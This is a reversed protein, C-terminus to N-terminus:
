TDYGGLIDSIQWLNAIRDARPKCEPQFMKIMRVLHNIFSCGEIADNNRQLYELLEKLDNIQTQTHHDTSGIRHDFPETLEGELKETQRNIASIAREMCVSNDIIYNIWRRKVQPELMPHLM